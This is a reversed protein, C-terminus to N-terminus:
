YDDYIFILPILSNKASVKYSFGINFSDFLITEPEARLTEHPKSKNILLKSFKRFDQNAALQPLRRFNINIYCVQIKNVKFCVSVEYNMIMLFTKYKM